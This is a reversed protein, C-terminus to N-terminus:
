NKPSELRQDSLWELLKDTREALQVIERKMASRDERALEGDAVSRVIDLSALLRATTTLAPTRRNPKGTMMRTM